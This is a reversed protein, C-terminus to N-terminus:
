LNKLIKKIYIKFASITLVIVIYLFEPIIRMEYFILFLYLFYVVVFTGTSFTHYLM